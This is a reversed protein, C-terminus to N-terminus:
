QFLAREAPTMLSWEEATVGDPISEPNVSIGRSARVQEKLSAIIEKNNEKSQGLEPLQLGYQRQEYDSLTGEGPIRLAARIAGSLQQRYSEFLRADKSDFIRSMAGTVGLPGGTKVEDLQKEIRNAIADVRGLIKDGAALAAREAAPVSSLVRLEGTVANRQLVTGKPFGLAEVQAGQVVDFRTGASAVTPERVIDLTGDAKRQVVTGAPLRLAAVEKPTLDRVQAEQPKSFAGTLPNYVAGGVTRGTVGEQALTFLNPAAAAVDRGAQTGYMRALAERPDQRYQSQIAVPGLGSEDEGMDAPAAPAGGFLRGTIRGIEDEAAKQRGQLRKKELRAGAMEAVGTLGQTPTTGRAMADFVASMGQRRIQKREEASLQSLDEGLLGGIYSELNEGARKAGRKFIDLLGM